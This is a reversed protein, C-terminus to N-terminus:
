EIYPGTAALPRWENGNKEFLYNAGGHDLSLSVLLFSAIQRFQIQGRAVPQKRGFPKGQPTKGDRPTPILSLTKSRAEFQLSQYENGLIIAGQKKGLLQHDPFAGDDPAIKQDFFAWELLQRVPAMHAETLKPAVQRQQNSEAYFIGLIGGMATASIKKDPEKLLQLFLPLYTVDRQFSIVQLVRQRTAGEASAFMNRLRKETDPANADRVAKGVHHGYFSASIRTEPETGLSNLLLYIGSYDGIGTLARAAHLRTWPDNAALFKVLQSRATPSPFVELLQLLDGRISAGDQQNAPGPATALLQLVDDVIEKGGSEEIAERQAQRVQSRKEAAMAALLQGVAQDANPLRRLEETAYQAMRHDSSALELLPHMAAANGTEALTRIVSRQWNDTEKAPRKLLDVLSPITRPDKLRALPGVYQPIQTTALTAIFKLVADTASRNGNEGATVLYGIAKNRVSRNQSDLARIHIAVVEERLEFSALDRLLQVSIEVKARELLPRLQRNALEQDSLSERENWWKRWAQQRATPTKAMLKRSEDMTLKALEALRYHAANACRQSRNTVLSILLDLDERTLQTLLGSTEDLVLSESTKLFRKIIAVPPQRGSGQLAWVGRIRQNGDESQMWSICDAMARDEDIRFMAKAFCRETYSNHTATRLLGALEEYSTVYDLDSTAEVLADWFEYETAFEGFAEILEPTEGELKARGRLENFKKYSPLGARFQELLLPNAQEAPLEPLVQLSYRYLAQRSLQERNAFYTKLGPIGAVILSDLSRQTRDTALAKIKALLHDDARATM